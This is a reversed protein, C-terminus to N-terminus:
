EDEYHYNSVLVFDNSVDAGSALSNASNFQSMHYSNDDSNNGSDERENWIYAEQHDTLVIFRNYFASIATIKKQSLQEIKKFSEYFDDNCYKSAIEGLGYLCGNGGLLLISKRKTSAIEVISQIGEITYKKLSIGNSDPFSGQSNMKKQYNQKMQAFTLMPNQSYSISHMSPRNDHCNSTTALISTNTTTQNNNIFIRYISNSEGVCFPIETGFISICRENLIIQVMPCNANGTTVFVKGNDSLYITFDRYGTKADIIRPLIDIKTPTSYFQNIPLGIAYNSNDGWGFVSGNKYVCIGYFFGVSLKSINKMKLRSAILKVQLNPVFHTQKKGEQYSGHPIM